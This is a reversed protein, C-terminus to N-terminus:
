ITAQALANMRVPRFQRKLHSLGSRGTDSSDNYFPLESHKSMFAHRLLYGLGEVHHDSLCVFISGMGSHIPGGFVVGVIRDDIRAVLGELSGSSFRSSNKICARVYSYGSVKVDKEETLQDYWLDLLNLCDGRDDQRYPSLSLGPLKRVRNLHQRLRSFEGGIANVSQATDYIFEEERQELEFGSAIFQDAYFQDM